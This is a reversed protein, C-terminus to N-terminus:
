PSQSSLNNHKKKQNLRKHTKYKFILYSNFINTETNRIYNFIKTSYNFQLNTYFSFISM